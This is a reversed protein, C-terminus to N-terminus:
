LLARRLVSLYALVCLVLGELNILPIATVAPIKDTALGLIESLQAGVLLILLVQAVLPLPNKLILKLCISTPSSGISINEAIKQRLFKYAFFSRLHASLVIIVYGALQFEKTYGFNSLYTQIPDVLFVTCFAISILYLLFPIRQLIVTILLLSTSILATQALAENPFNLKSATLLAVIVLIPGFM